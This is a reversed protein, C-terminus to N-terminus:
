QCRCRSKERPVPVPPPVECGQAHVSVAHAHVGEITCTDYTCALHVDGADPRQRVHVRGEHADGARGV